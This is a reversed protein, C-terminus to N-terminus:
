LVNWLLVCECKFMCTLHVDSDLTLQKEYCYYAVLAVFHM